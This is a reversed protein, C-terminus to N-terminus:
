DREPRRLLTEPDTPPWRLFLLVDACELLGERILTM